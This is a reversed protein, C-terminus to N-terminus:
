AGERGSDCVALLATAVRHVIAQLGHVGQQIVIGWRSDRSLFLRSAFRRWTRQMNGKAVRIDKGEM